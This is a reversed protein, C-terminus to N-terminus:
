SLGLRARLDPQEITGAEVPLVTTAPTAPARKARLEADVIDAVRLNGGGGSLVFRIKNTNRAIEQLPSNANAAYVTRKKSARDDAQDIM